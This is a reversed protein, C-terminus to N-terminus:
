GESIMHHQALFDSIENFRHIAKAPDITQEGESWLAPEVFEAPLHGEIHALAGIAWGQDYFRGNLPLYKRLYAHLHRACEDTGLLGLAVCYGPGAYTQASAILLNAIPQVFRHRKTLGVFWGACLRGRWDPEGFLRGIQDDSITRGADSIRAALDSSGEKHLFNAHLLSLYFPRVFADRLALDFEGYREVDTM